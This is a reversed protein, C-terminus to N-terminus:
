RGQSVFDVCKSCCSCIVIQLWRGEKSPREGTAPCSRIWWIVSVNLWWTQKQKRWLHLEQWVQLFLDFVYWVYLWIQLCLDFMCDVMDAKTKELPTNGALDTFVSWVYLWGGHRSEGFPALDKLLQVKQLFCVHHNITHKIQLMHVLEQFVQTWMYLDFMCDVVMDAKELLHLEQFVQTWMNCILCVILWWTQKRWFTCSRFSRHECTCILCVILWWTQKRSEGFTYNWGSRYVCIMCDVMDAKAKESHHQEQWIHLCLDFLWGRTSKREGFTYNRGSTYVCILCVILRISMYHLCNHTVQVHKFGFIFLAFRM